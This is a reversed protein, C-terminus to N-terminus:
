CFVAESNKKAAARFLQLAVMGIKYDIAEEYVFKVFDDVDDPDMEGLVDDLLYWSLDKV